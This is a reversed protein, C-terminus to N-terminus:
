FQLPKFLWTLRNNLYKQRLVKTAAELVVKKEAADAMSKVVDEVKIKQLLDDDKLMHRTLLLHNCNMIKVFCKVQTKKTLQEQTMDKTIKKPCKEIGLVVCHPYKRDETAAYSTLVVVKKGAHRGNLVLAFRGPAVLASMDFPWALVLVTKKEICLRGSLVITFYM